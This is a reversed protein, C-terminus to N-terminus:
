DAELFFVFLTNVFVEVCVSRLIPSRELREALLTALQIAQDLLLAPLAALCFLLEVVGLELGRDIRSPLCPSLGLFVHPGGASLCEGLMLICERRQTCFVICANRFARLTREIPRVVVADPLGEVRRQLTDSFLAQGDA